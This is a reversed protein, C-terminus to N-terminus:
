EHPYGKRYKDREKVFDGTKWFGCSQTEEPCFGRVVCPRPECWFLSPSIPKVIKRMRDALIRIEWQARDCLRLGFLHNLSRANMAVAIHTQLSDPLLYRADEHPVGRAVLERYKETSVSISEEYIQANKANKKIQPPVIFGEESIDRKGRSSMQLYSAIRHRVLQHTLVRSVGSVSFIFFAFETIGEHGMSLVQGIHKRASEESLEDVIVDAAEKRKTAKSCAAVIKEINDVHGLLVVKVVYARRSRGSLEATATM